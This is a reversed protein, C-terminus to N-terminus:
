RLVVIQRPDVSIGIPSGVAHPPVDRRHPTDVVMEQEGVNIRYRITGGLFEFAQV